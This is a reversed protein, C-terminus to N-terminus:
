NNEPTFDQTHIVANTELYELSEEDFDTLPTSLLDSTDEPLPKAELMAAVRQLSSLILTQEWDHLKSFEADLREQLLSPTNFLLEKGVDTVKVMVRRRDASSRTREVLGRKEMRDLIDTVTANSLSINRALDGVSIEGSAALERLLILQPGTLGYSRVLSKSHLDIARSIRRLAVLVKDCLDKQSPM